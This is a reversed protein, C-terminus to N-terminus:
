LIDTAITHDEFIVSYYGKPELILLLLDITLLQLSVLVTKNLKCNGINHRLSNRQPSQCFLNCM